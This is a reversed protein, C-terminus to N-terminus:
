YEDDDDDDDDGNEAAEVKEIALIAKTDRVQDESMRLVDTFIQAKTFYIGVYEDIETLIGIRNQLIELQKLEEFHNDRRFDYRLNNKIEEWDSPTIIAKLILQQKLCENFLISFRTRLRTVFKSFKVEDRSIESSKGLSFEAETDFRSMPVRLSRHLARQFYEVDEMEGLNSGGPLTDIETGKGGERRALWFDDTMSMFRRNDAIEGTSQDYVLRNKHKTMMERLYQEAKAKPLNGVDIYFIRREPARSLRYIVTADEMMRLQNLSKSSSHLYSLILTNSENMIGSNCTIISDTAIRIGDNTGQFNLSNKADNYFGRDLYMYYENKLKSIFSTNTGEGVRDPEYERIKRIKRPDIYRLERIGKKPNDNDIVAHYYIRGNVYWNEFINYGKNQFNLLNLITKFEDRIREKIDDSFNIGDTVVEVPSENGMVISENVIDNVAQQVEPQQMMERYKNVLEAETRASGDLDLFASQTGGTGPVNSSVHYAGDGEDPEVFSVLKDHDAEKKSKIEYGFLKVSM